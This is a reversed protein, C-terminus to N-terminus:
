GASIAGEGDVIVLENDFDYSISRAMIFMDTDQAQGTDTWSLKKGPTPISGLFPIRFRTRPKHWITMIDNLATNVNAETDHYQTVSLNKGHSFASFQSFAGARAVAVPELYDYQSPFYDFETYEVTGSNLLMDVLHATTGSVYFLHGYFAAIDSALDIALKDGSTTHTVNPIAVRGYTVDLTDIEAISTLIADLVTELDNNYATTSAITEDYTPGYLRYTIERRNIGTLQAIGTFLTEKAGETTATYYASLLGTVPPPWDDDFLDPVFSISGYGLKVYGGYYSALKFQIPDFTSVKADWYNTLAIGEQSLRNLTGNITFEILLSM